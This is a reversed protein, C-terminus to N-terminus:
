IIHKWFNLPSGHYFTKECYNKYGGLITKIIDGDKYVEVKIINDFNVNKVCVESYGGFQEQLSSWDIPTIVSLDNKTLHTLLDKVTEKNPEDRYGCLSLFESTLTNLGHESYNDEEDWENNYEILDDIIEDKYGSIWIDGGYHKDINDLSIYFLVGNIIPQRYEHAASTQGNSYASAYSKSISLYVLDLGFGTSRSINPEIKLNINETIFEYFNKIKNM